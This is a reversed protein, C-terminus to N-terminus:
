ARWQIWDETLRVLAPCHIKQRYERASIGFAARFRRAFYNPDHWGVQKGVLAIPM